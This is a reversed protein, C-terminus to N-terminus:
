APSLLRQRVLPLQDNGFYLHEGDVFMTPSGWAGRDIAEQTNARLRDKVPQSAAVEALAAGDLGIGDAVAVLEAVEDLNRQDHFYAAFAAASFRQLLPQDHELACCFRMAHISRLPHHPSPFDIPLGAIRAWEKLWVNPRQSRVTGTTARKEYIAPNVANFVGGVLLPRWIVGAGTEALIPQINAFALYTWPSSLDYFFEVRAM